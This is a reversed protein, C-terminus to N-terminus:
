IAEVCENKVVGYVSNNFSPSSAILEPITQRLEDISWREEKYITRVREPESYLSVVHAGVFFTHGTVKGAEESALYVALPAIDEPKSREMEEIRETAAQELWAEKRKEDFLLLRTVALPRIANCTVNYKLLDGAVARTFGIIGEKAAAYNSVGVTQGLGATSSVNVIRGWQQRRMIASAPRTCHFHGYLHVKIVADWEDETMNFIMRDRMIGANNVLIDIRGYNDSATRIISEGGEATAVTDYSAVAEGGAGRIEAVVEDAPASSAGIGNPRVGYDNVVLKAGERAMLIAMARGIGRGAGTIVAVKGQLVKGMKNGILSVLLEM